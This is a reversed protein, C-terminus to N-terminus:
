RLCGACIGRTVADDREQERTRRQIDSGPGLYLKDPRPVTEGSKTM